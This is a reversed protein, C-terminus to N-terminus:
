RLDERRWLAEWFYYFFDCFFYTTLTCPNEKGKGDGATYGTEKKVGEVSM